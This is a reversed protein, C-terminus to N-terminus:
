MAETTMWGFKDFSRTAYTPTILWMTQFMAQIRCM